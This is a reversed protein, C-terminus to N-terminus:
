DLEYNMIRTKFVKGALKVSIKRRKRLLNRYGRKLCQNSVKRERFWGMRCSWLKKVRIRFTRLMRIRILCTNYYGGMVKRFNESFLLKKISYTCLIFFHHFKQFHHPHYLFVQRVFYLFYFHLHIKTIFNFIISFKFFFFQERFEGQFTFNPTFLICSLREGIWFVSLRWPFVM